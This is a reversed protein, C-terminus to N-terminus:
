YNTDEGKKKTFKGLNTFKASRGQGGSIGLTKKLEHGNLWHHQKIM